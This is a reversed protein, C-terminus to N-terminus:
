AANPLRNSLRDHLRDSYTGHKNKILKGKGMEREEWAVRELGDRDVLDESYGDFLGM